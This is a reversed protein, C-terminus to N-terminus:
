TKVDDSGKYVLAFDKGLHSLNRAAVIIAPLFLVDCVLAASLTAMSLKGFLRTIPLDSLITVSMGCVLVITTLILVPGIRAITQQVAKRISTFRGREYHYRNLFHITDDVSLGFAVTLAMVSAFQLGEDMLFLATGVAAIPFLNPVVSLLAADLSRFAFGILAIVIVVAILLSRNLQSIMDASQLSTLASLGTVDFTFDSYKDRLGQLQGDIREMIPRTSKSDLNPIYGTIVASRKPTNYYRIRVHKPLKKLYKDLNDPGKLGGDALWQRVTSVSLTSSVAKEKEMLDHAAAIVEQVKDSLLNEAKPWEIVVHVPHASSLKEDIRELAALAQQGDPIQDSLKYRPKLQLHITAFLVALALGLVALSKYNGTVFRGIGEAFSDVWDMAKHRKLNEGERAFDEENRLLLMTFTPIATIMALYAVMTGFAAVFGFSRIVASDTFTLSVFAIATTLSTLVCAPGVTLVARRAATYRDKGQRLQRRVSFVMHMADSFAIVMVLPPIVNVFTGLEQGTHGLFGLVWLVTFLPCLSTIFVLRWNRFFLWSIFTGISFGIGNFKFRDVKITDEIEKQMVPAGTLRASLGAEGLIEGALKDIEQITGSLKNSDIIKPKLSVIVLALAGDENPRTLLRNGILPHTYARELLKEYGADDEPLDAPFVLKAEGKKDPPDRMSFASVVGAVGEVFQLDLTFARIEELVERETLEKGEVLVQVDFESAPFRNSFKKYTQYETTNSQYLGSLKGAPVLKPLGFAMAISILMLLTFATWPNRLPPLGIREFGFGLSSM